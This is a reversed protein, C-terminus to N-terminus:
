KKKLYKDLFKLVAEYGEIENESKLFGHGEDEFVVYEVPVGNKRVAEVIEDSEIQLVRPDNAGQLVMLPKKIKDAHFLPSIKHLRLSDATNPNGMEAYMAHKFSEWWPPMNRITRLWNAPGFIDVGVEFEDPQYTLAALTMYGGYSGGMIGVKEMDIYGLSKLYDKSKVCDMLDDEGHRQDDAQNFTKGYGSSGRNNVALIAYGHNCLFQAIPSYGMRSQGGPGGHIMLTAPVKNDASAGQPKYLIAPIELGDFSKFTIHEPEVLDDANIAPNLNDTLQKCTGKEIDYLYLNSPQKAAQISFVMLKESESIRVNGIEGEPLNPFKVEKGSAVDYIKLTTKANKDIGVIRYKENFSTYAYAVSAEKEELFNEKKGTEIDYRVLYSYEGGENTTYFLSKSDNSFGSTRYNATGKHETILKNEKTKTDYLYLNNDSTTNPKSLVFYKKNDSIEEFSLNESNEYLMELEMVDLQVEYVDTLKGTRKTSGVFFSQKDRSFGYFSYRNVSSTDPTLEKKNGEEDMMFLHYIENGETDGQYLFADNKPFYGSAWQASNKSDTLQTMEGTELEISHVNYVGSKDCGILLKTEDHNFGRSYVSVNDTFQKYSYQKVSQADLALVGLFCLFLSTIKVFNM